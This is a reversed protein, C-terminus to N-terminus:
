LLTEGDCAHDFCFNALDNLSSDIACEHDFMFYLNFFLGFLKGFNHFEFNETIRKIWYIEEVSKRNFCTEKHEWDYDKYFGRYWGQFTGRHKQVELDIEWQEEYMIHDLTSMTEPDRYNEDGIVGYM